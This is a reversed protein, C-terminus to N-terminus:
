EPVYDKYNIQVRLQRSDESVFHVFGSHVKDATELKADEFTKNSDVNVVLKAAPEMTSWTMTKGLPIIVEKVEGPALELFTIPPAVVPKLNNVLATQAPASAVSDKKRGVLFLVFAVIFLGVIISTIVNRTM